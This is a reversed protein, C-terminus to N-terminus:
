HLAVVLPEADRVDQTTWIAGALAFGIRAVACPDTEDEELEDDPVVGAARIAAAVEAPPEEELFDIDDSNTAFASEGDVAYDLSILSSINHHVTIAPGGAESLVVAPSRMVPPDQARLASFDGTRAGALLGRLSELGGIAFTSGADDFVATWGGIRVALLASMCDPSGLAARLVSTWGDPREAPLARVTAAEADAGLIRLAERPELDRVLHVTHNPDLVDLESLWIPYGDEDLTGPPFGPTSM